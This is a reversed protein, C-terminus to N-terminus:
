QVLCVGACFRPQGGKLILADFEEAAILLGTRDVGGPAIGLAGADGLLDLEASAIQGVALRKALHAWAQQDGVWGIALTQSRILVQFGQIGREALQHALAEIAPAACHQGGIGPEALAHAQTRMAIMEQKLKWKFICDKQVTTLNILPTIMRM